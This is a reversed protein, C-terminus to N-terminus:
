TNFYLQEVTSCSTQITNLKKVRFQTEKTKKEKLLGINETTELIKSTKCMRSSREM